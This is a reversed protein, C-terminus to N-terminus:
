MFVLSQDSGLRRLHFYSLTTLGFIHPPLDKLNSDLSKYGVEAYQNGLENLESDSPISSSTKFHVLASAGVHLYEQNLQQLQNSISSSDIPHLLSLDLDESNFNGAM